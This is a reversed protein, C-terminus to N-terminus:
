AADPSGAAAANPAANNANEIIHAVPGILINFVNQIWNAIILETSTTIGKSTLITMLAPTAASIAIDAKQKGTLKTGAVISAKAIQQAMMIANVVLDYEPGIPTLALIPEAAVAIDEVETIVPGAKVFFTKVHDLFREFDDETSAPIPAVAKLASSAETLLALPTAPPPTIISPM